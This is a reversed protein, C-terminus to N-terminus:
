GSETIENLEDSKARNDVLNPGSRAGLVVPAHFTSVNKSFRSVVVFDFIFGITM